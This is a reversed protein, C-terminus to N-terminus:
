LLDTGPQAAVTSERLFQEPTLNTVHAAKLVRGAVRPVEAVGAQTDVLRTPDSSSSGLSSPLNQRTLLVDASATYRARHQLSAAVGAATLALTALVIIWGRRRVVRLYDGLTLAHQEEPAPRM